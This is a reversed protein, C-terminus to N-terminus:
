REDYLQLERTYSPNFFGDGEGVKIKGIRHKYIGLAVIILVVVLFAAGCGAVIPIHGPLWSQTTPKKSYKYESTSKASVPSVSSTKYSSDVDQVNILPSPFLHPLTDNSVLNLADKIQDTTVSHGNCQAKFQFNNAQVSQLHFHIDSSNFIYDELFKYVFTVSPQVLDKSINKQFVFNVLEGALSKINKVECTMGIWGTQCGCNFSGPTNQCIGSNKCVHDLCENVDTECINGTWGGYCRCYFSGDINECIGSNLCPMITECEDVDQECLIGTWGKACACKSESNKVICTGNNRCKLSQCVNIFISCDNGSFGPFCSCKYSGPLNTCIGNGSCPMDLTSCEDIDQLCNQGQWGNKCTCNYSGFKNSCNISHAGCMNQSCENIDTECDIGTFGADCICAHGNSREECNGHGSCTVNVCSPSRTLCHPGTFGKSCNCKYSGPSNLCNGYKCLKFPGECENMDVSCDNGTWGNPCDCRYSGPKNECLGGNKCVSKACENIDSDCTRGSWFKTCNCMFDHASQQCTGNHQCHINDCRNRIKTECYNGTYNLSCMCFFQSGGIDLCTGNNLCNIGACAGVITACQNGGYGLACTCSYNGVHNHCQGGDHCPQSLCEDIDESCTTGQFGKHCTCTEIGNITRADGNECQNKENCYKGTWGEICKCRFDEKQSEDVICTGQSCPNPDCSPVKDETCIFGTWLSSCHCNFAGNTNQCTANNQCIHLACEDVDQECSSGTYGPDCSCNFGNNPLLTCKGGHKCPNPSCANLSIECEDGYWGPDCRDTGHDAHCLPGSHGPACWFLLRLTISAINSIKVDFSKAHTVNPGPQVTINKTLVDIIDSASGNLDSDKVLVKISTQNKTLRFGGIMPHSVSAKNNTLDLLTPGCTSISSTNVFTPSITVAGICDDQLIEGICVSVQLDCLDTAFECHETKPEDCCRRAGSTLDGNYSTGKPNALTKIEVGIYINSIIHEGYGTPSVAPGTIVGNNFYNKLNSPKQLKLVSDFVLPTIQHNGCDAIFTFTNTNTDLAPYQLSLQEGSCVKDQMFRHANLDIDPLQDKKTQNKFELLLADSPQCSLKGTSECVAMPSIGRCYSSCFEGYYDKDCWVSVSINLRARGQWAFPYPQSSTQDPSPIFKIEDILTDIHEHKKIVPTGFSDDDRIFVFISMGPGWFDSKSEMMSLNSITNTNQLPKTQFFAGKCGWDPEMIGVCIDFYTDCTDGTQCNSRQPGDCCKRNSTSDAYCTGNPNSFSHITVSVIVGADCVKILILCSLILRMNVDM